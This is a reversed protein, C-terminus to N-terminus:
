ENSNLCIVLWYKYFLMEKIKKVLFIGKFYLGVDRQELDKVQQM